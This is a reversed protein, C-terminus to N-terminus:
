EVLRIGDKEISIKREKYLTGIAKKFSKKSLQFVEKIDQPDSKDNLGIFGGNSSLEDLIQQANPEISRYGHKQLTLDIKGDPRVKKVYGKLQDGVNIKQFIEDGYVLGLHKENVIM